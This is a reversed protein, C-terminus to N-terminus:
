SLVLTSDAIQKLGRINLERLFRKRKTTVPGIQVNLSPFLRKSRWQIRVLVKQDELGHDAMIGLSFDCNDKHAVVYIRLKRHPPQKERLVRYSILCYFFFIWLVCYPNKHRVEKWTIGCMHGRSKALNQGAIERRWAEKGRFNQVRGQIPFTVYKLHLHWILVISWM